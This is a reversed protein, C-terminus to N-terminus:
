RPRRGEEPWACLERYRAGDGDRRSEFLTVREFRCSLRPASLPAPPPMEVRRALTVHPRFARKDVRIGVRGALGRLRKVLALLAAPPASPALWTMAADARWLPEDLLLTLGLPELLTEDLALVLRELRAEDVEGLFCLTVHLNEIPVERGAHPWHRARWHEIALAAEPEPALALFTRM